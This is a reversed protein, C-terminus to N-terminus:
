GGRSCSDPGELRLKMALQEMGSLWSEIDGREPAYHLHQVGANEYRELNSRVEAEGARADWPVRLSITFTEEPRLGRIRKVLTGAADAEVGIGHYGDAMRVAREIAADSTGGLWIPIQHAPKPLVRM